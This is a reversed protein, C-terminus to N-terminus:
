CLTITKLNKIGGSKVDLLCKNTFHDNVFINVHDDFPAMRNGFSLFTRPIDCYRNFRGSLGSATPEVRLWEEGDVSFTMKDLFLFHTETYIPFIFLPLFEGFDYSCYSINGPEWRVSYVHFNSSWQPGNFLEKRGLLVQRCALNM